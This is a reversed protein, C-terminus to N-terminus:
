SRFALSLLERRAQNRYAYRLTEGLNPGGGLYRFDGAVIDPTDNTGIDLYRCAVSMADRMANADADFAAALRKWHDAVGPKRRRVEETAETGARVKRWVQELSRVPFHYLVADDLVHGKLKHRLYMAAHSGFGINLLPNVAGARLVVKSHQAPESAFRHALRIVPNPQTAEDNSTPVCTVWRMFAVRGGQHTFHDDLVTGFSAGDTQIFEDADLPVVYKLNHILAKAENALITIWRGHQFIESEVSYLFIPYGEDRLREIIARTSDTSQHDCILFYDVHVANHRVFPEIIDEENRVISVAAVPM